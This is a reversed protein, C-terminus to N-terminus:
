GRCYLNYIDVFKTEVGAGLNTNYVRKWYAALGRVDSVKPLPKPDRYYKIRAMATAYLLNGVMETPPIVASSFRGAALSRIKSALNGNNLLYNTWCDYYTDPEMQYLGLAPGKPYQYLYHLRSEVLATGLLLSVASPTAYKDGLFQLAPVIVLQKFDETNIM